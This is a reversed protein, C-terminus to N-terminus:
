CIAKPLIPGAKTPYIQDSFARFTPADWGQNDDPKKMVRVTAGEHKKAEQLAIRGNTTMGWKSGFFVGYLKTAAM